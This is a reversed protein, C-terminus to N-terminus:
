EGAVLGLLLQQEEFVDSTPCAAVDVEDLKAFLVKGRSRLHFERVSDELDDIYLVGRGPEDEVGRRGNGELDLSMANM